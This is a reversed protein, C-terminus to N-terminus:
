RIPGPDIVIQGTWDMVLAIDHSTIIGSGKLRTGTNNDFICFIIIM